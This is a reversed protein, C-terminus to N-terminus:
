VHLCTTLSKRLETGNTVQQTVLCLTVVHEAPIVWWARGCLHYCLPWCLDVHVHEFAECM